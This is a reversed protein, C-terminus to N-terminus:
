EMTKDPAEIRLWELSEPTSPGQWLKGRWDPQFNTEYVPAGGHLIDKQTQRKFAVQPNLRLNSFSINPSDRMYKLSIHPHHPELSFSAPSFSPAEQTPQPASNITELPGVVWTGPSSPISPMSWGLTHLPPTHLPSDSVYEEQGQTHNHSIM